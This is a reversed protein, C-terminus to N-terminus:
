RSLGLGKLAESPRILGHGFNNDRGPSGLDEATQEIAAQVAAPDTIGQRVLLAALAAVHPTAQSTGTVFFYGFDNFVGREASDPDLTQQLIGDPRGDSNDPRHIDNLTDCTLLRYVAFGGSTNYLLADGNDTLTPDSASQSRMTSATGIDAMAAM